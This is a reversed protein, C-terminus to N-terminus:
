ATLAVDGRAPPTKKAPEALMSRLRERSKAETFDSFHKRFRKRLKDQRQQLREELRGVAILCEVPAGDTRALDKAFPRLAGRQVRLDNFEGLTDQLTRLPAVFSEVDDADYLDQFFELLYRLKKCEVRLRHFKLDPSKPKLAEGRRIVRAFRKSIRESAVELVPRNADRAQPGAAPKTRLFASWDRLLRKCRESRLGDTLKRQEAQQRSVVFALLPDIDRRHQPPLLRAHDAMAM